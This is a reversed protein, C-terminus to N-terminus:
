PRRSRCNISRPSINPSKRAPNSTSICAPHSPLIQRLFSFIGDADTRRSLYSYEYQSGPILWMHFQEAANGFDEWFCWDGCALSTLYFDTKSCIQIFRILHSPYRIPFQGPGLPRPVPPSTLTSKGWIRGEREFFLPFPKSYTSFLSSVLLRRICWGM